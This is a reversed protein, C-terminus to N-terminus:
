NSKSIIMTESTFRIVPKAKTTDTMGLLAWGKSQAFAKTAKTTNM